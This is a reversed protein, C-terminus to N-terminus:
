ECKFRDIFEEGSLFWMSSRENNYHYTIETRGDDFESLTDVTAIRPIQLSEKALYKSGIKIRKRVESPEM